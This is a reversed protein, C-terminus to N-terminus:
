VVLLTNGTLLGTEFALWCNEYIKNKKKYKKHTAPSLRQAIHRSHQSEPKRGAGNRVFHEALQTMNIRPKKKM